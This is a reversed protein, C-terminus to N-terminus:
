KQIILVYRGSKKKVMQIHSWNKNKLEPFNQYFEKKSLNCNHSHTGNLQVSDSNAIILCKARCGMFRHYCYATIFKAPKRTKSCYCYINKNDNYYHKEFIYRGKEMTRFGNIIKKYKKKENKKNKEKKEKVDEFLKNNDDYKSGSIDNIIDDNEDIILIENNSNTEKKNKIEKNDKYEKPKENIQNNFSYKSSLISLCMMTISEKNKIKSTAKKIKKFLGAKDNNTQDDFINNNIKIIIDAIETFSYESILDKLTNYCKDLESITM